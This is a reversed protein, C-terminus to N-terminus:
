ASISCVRFRWFKIVIVGHYASPLWHCVPTTERSGAAAFECLRSPIEAKKGREQRQAPPM